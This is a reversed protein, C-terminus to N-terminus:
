ETGARVGTGNGGPPPQYLGFSLDDIVLQWYHRTSLEIRTINRWDADFWLPGLGSLEIEEAGILRDGRWARINMTEGESALFALGFYGGHFDFGKDHGITIPYGSTNYAVMHGSITNNIYGEGGYYEMEVPILNTWELGAYGNPMKAIVSPTVSEFDIIRDYPARPPADEGLVIASLRAPAQKVEVTRTTTAGSATTTATVSWSGPAAPFTFRGDKDPAAKHVAGDPATATVTVDSRAALSDDGARKAIRGSITLISALGAPVPVRDVVMGARAEPEEVYTMTQTGNGSTLEWGPPVQVQLTYSGPRSVIVGPATMSNTFKVFGQINSRQVSRKGDRDTITVAVKTMPRDGVDYIGNRNIDRYIFHSVNDGPSGLPTWVTRKPYLDDDAAAPTATLWLLALAMVARNTKTMLSFSM